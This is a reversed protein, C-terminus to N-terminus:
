SGSTHFGIEMEKTNPHPKIEHSALVLEKRDSGIWWVVRYEVYDVSYIYIQKITAPVGDGVIVWSGPAYVKLM